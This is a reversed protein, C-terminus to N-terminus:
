RWGELTKTRVREALERNDLKYISLSSASGFFGGSMKMGDARGDKIADLAEQPTWAYVQQIPNWVEESKNLNMEFSIEEKIDDFVPTEGHRLKFLNGRNLL